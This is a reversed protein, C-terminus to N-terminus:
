LSEVGTIYYRSTCDYDDASKGEPLIFTQSRYRYQNKHFNYLEESDIVVETWNWHCNNAPDKIAIRIYKCKGLTAGQELYTPLSAVPIEITEYNFCIKVKNDDNCDDECDPCVGDEGDEGDTGDEGNCVTITELIENGTLNDDENDDYGTVLIIGGNVCGNQNGDFETVKIFVSKGDEGDTGNEGNEGDEIRVTEVVVFEEDIIYGFEIITTNNEKSTRTVISNGDQGDQGDVGDTGDVGNEIFVTYQIENEQLIDDRNIDLGSYIYTGNNVSEYDFVTNFGNEGDQGNEGDTGNFVTFSNTVEISDLVGNRNIDLGNQVIFGIVVEDEIIATNTSISTYGDIGNTVIFTQGEEDLDLERNGNQDIGITVTYGGQPYEQSDLAEIRVALSKGDEGDCVYESSTIEDSDLVDNRNTDLGSEILLGGLECIEGQEVRKTNVRTTYGDEGDTGNEGNCVIVTESVESEELVDNRNLDYGLEIKIGGNECEAGADIATVKWTATNGDEGNTGDKGNCVYSTSQVEEDQLVNDENTDKGFDIRLGGNECIGEAGEFNTTRALTTTGDLGEIAVTEEQRDISCSAILLALLFYISKKM